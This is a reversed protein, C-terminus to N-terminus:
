RSPRGQGIESKAWCVLPLPLVGAERRCLLWSSRRTLFLAAYHALADCTEHHCERANPSPATNWLDVAGISLAACKPLETRGAWGRDVAAGERTVDFPRLAELLPEGHRQHKDQLTRNPRM